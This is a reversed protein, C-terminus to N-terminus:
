ARLPSRQGALAEVSGREKSRPSSKRIGIEKTRETAEVSGREKSRPSRVGPSSRTAKRAAEVSGREKSRPSAANLADALRNLRQKL